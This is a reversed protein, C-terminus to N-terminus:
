KPIINIFGFFALSMLGAMIFAIPAGQFSRPVNGYELKERIGAMLLMALTFGIGSSIDFILTKIIDFKYTINLQTVGLIACNTTILPLYIGLSKYLNPVYRQLVVELFQVTAAITLIFVLLSLFEINLPVLIYHYQIFSILGSVTIVFTVALGMGLSASLRKSVGVFPCIGLFRSLLFNNVFVAGIFVYFYEM